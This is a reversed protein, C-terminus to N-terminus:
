TGSSVRILMLSVVHTAVTIYAFLVEDVEPSSMIPLRSLYEKLCQFTM